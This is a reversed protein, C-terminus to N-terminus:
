ADVDQRYNEVCVWRRVEGGTTIPIAGAAVLMLDSVQLVHVTSVTSAVEHKIGRVRVRGEDPPGYRMNVRLAVGCDPRTWPYPLTKMTIEPM